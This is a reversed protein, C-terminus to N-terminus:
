TKYESQLLRNELLGTKTANDSGITIGQDAFHVRMVTQADSATEPQQNAVEVNYNARKSKQSIHVLVLGVHFELQVVPLPDVAAAAM